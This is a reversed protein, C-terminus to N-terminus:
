DVSDVPAIADVRCIFELNRDSGEEYWSITVTPPGEVSAASFFQEIDQTHTPLGPWFPENAGLSLSSVFAVVSTDAASVGGLSSSAIVTTALDREGELVGRERQRVAYANAVDLRAEARAFKLGALRATVGFVGVRGLLWSRGSAWEQTAPVEYPLTILGECPTGEVGERETILEARPTLAEPLDDSRWASILTGSWMWDRAQVCRRTSEDFRSGVDCARLDRACTYITASPTSAGDVYFVTADGGAACHAGPLEARQEIRVGRPLGDDLLFSSGGPCELTVEGNDWALVVCAADRLSVEVPESGDCEVVLADGVDSVGVRCSEPAEKVEVEEVNTPDEPACGCLVSVVIMISRHVNM